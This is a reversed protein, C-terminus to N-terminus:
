ASREANSPMANKSLSFGRYGVRQPGCDLAEAEHRPEFGLPRIPQCSSRFRAELLGIRSWAFFVFPRVFGFPNRAAM